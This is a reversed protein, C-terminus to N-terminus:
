KEILARALTVAWGSGVIVLLAVIVHRTKLESVFRKLVDFYIGFVAALFAFFAAIALICCTLGGTPQIYFSKVVEGRIFAIASTTMGCTPCPLGYRQKFGCPGFWRGVDLRETAALWLLGFFVGLLM